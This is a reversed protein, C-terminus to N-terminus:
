PNFLEDFFHIGNHSGTPTTHKYCFLCFFIRGRRPRVANLLWIELFM